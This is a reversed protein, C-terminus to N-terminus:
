CKCGKAIDRVKNIAAEKVKLNKDKLLTSAHKLTMMDSGTALLKETTTAGPNVFRKLHDQTFGKQSMLSKLSDESLSRRNTSNLISDIHDSTLNQNNALHEIVSKHEPSDKFTDILKSVHDDTLDDRSSIKNLVGVHADKNGSAKIISDIHDSHLNKRTAIKELEKPDKQFYNISYKLKDYNKKGSTDVKYTSTKEAPAEEATKNLPKDLSKDISPEIRAHVPTKKPKDGSIKKLLDGIIGEDLDEESLEEFIIDLKENFLKAELVEDLHQTINQNWYEVLGEDFSEFLESYEELLRRGGKSRYNLITSAANVHDLYKKEAPENWGRFNQAAEGADQIIFKLEGDTKKHWPHGVLPMVLSENVEEVSEVVTEISSKESDKGMVGKLVSMFDVYEKSM